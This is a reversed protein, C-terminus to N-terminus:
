KVKRTCKKLDKISPPPLRRVSSSMVMLQSRPAPGWGWLGAHARFAGMILPLRMVCTTSRPPIEFLTKHNRGKAASRVCAAATVPKRQPLLEPAWGAWHGGKGGHTLKM